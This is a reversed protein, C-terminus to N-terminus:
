IGKTCPNVTPGVGFGTKRNLIVRNLLYSKGTRYLGAVGVVAIPCNLSRLFEIGEQHVEYKNGQQTILPIPQEKYDASTFSKDFVIQSESSEFEKKKTSM